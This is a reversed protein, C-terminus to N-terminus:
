WAPKTAKWVRTLHSSTCLLRRGQFFPWTLRKRLFQIGCGLPFLQFWYSPSDIGYSFYEPNKILPHSGPSFTPFPIIIIGNIEIACIWCNLKWIRKVIRSSILDVNGLDNNKCDNNVFWILHQNEILPSFRLVRPFVEWLLTSFWCVWNMNSASYPFRVRAM